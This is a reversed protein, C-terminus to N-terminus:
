YMAHSQCVCLGDGEESDKAKILENIWGSCTTKLQIRDNLTQTMAAIHKQQGSQFLKTLPRILTLGGLHAAALVVALGIGSFNNINAVWPDESGQKLSGFPKGFTLDGAVDFAFSNFWTNIDVQLRAGSTDCSNAELQALLLNIYRKLIPEQERLSKSSFEPSLIRRIVQHFRTPETVINPTDTLTSYFRAFKPIEKSTNGEHKQGYIDKWSQPSSYALENPAIRVVPGYKLHLEHVKLPLRARFLYFIAPLRSARWLLPGPFGALPHRTVNYIASM